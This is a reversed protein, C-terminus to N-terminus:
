PRDDESEYFGDAMADTLPEPFSKYQATVDRVPRQKQAEVENWFGDHRLGDEVLILYDDFTM